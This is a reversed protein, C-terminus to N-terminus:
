TWMQSSTPDLIGERKLIKTVKCIWRGLRTEEEPQKLVRGDGVVWEEEDERTVIL